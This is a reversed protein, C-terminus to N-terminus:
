ILSLKINKRKFGEVLKWYNEDGYYTCIEEGVNIDKIAVFQFAKYQSHNRWYANNTNSHNYICGNGLPLVYEEVKGEAPYNFKYDYLFFAHEGPKFPLTILHCEEIVEGAKIEEIAFVGLGNIPSEKVEVKTAVKLQIM